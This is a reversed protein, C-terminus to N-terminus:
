DKNKIKKSDKFVLLKKEGSNRKLDIKNNNNNNPNDQQQGYILESKSTSRKKM